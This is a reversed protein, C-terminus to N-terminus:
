DTFEFTELIRDYFKYSNSKDSIGTSIEYIKDGNLVYVSTYPRSYWGMENSTQIRYAKRGDLLTDSRVTQNLWNDYNGADKIDDKWWDEASLSSFNDHAFFIVGGPGEGETYEIWVGVIRKSDPQGLIWSAPYKFTFGHESNRFSKWGSTDIELFEISSLISNVVKETEAFRRSSEIKILYVIENNIVYVVTSGYPGCPTDKFMFARKSDITLTDSKAESLYSCWDNNAVFSELSIKEQLDIYTINFIFNSDLLASDSMLTWTNKTQTKVGDVSVLQDELDTFGKPYKVSYGGNENIYETWDKMSYDILSNKKNAVDAPITTPSSEPEPVTPSVNSLVLYIAVAILGLVIVVIPLMVGRSNTSKSIM